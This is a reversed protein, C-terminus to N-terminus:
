LEFVEFEGECNEFPEKDLTRKILDIYVAVEEITPSFFLQRIGIQIEFEKRIRAVVQVAMLSNGGIELFNDKLGVRKLGLIESLIKELKKQIETTPALYKKEIRENFDPIPLAKRDVKGNITLPISEMVIFATPVMYQPLRSELFARVETEELDKKNVPVVYAILQKNDNREYVTVVARKVQECQSLVSEIEGLEIRFGRIKVQNDLRGIFEINGDPLWRALDGTKYLRSSPDDDFPNSIFKEKTLEPRNLYGRALGAGLVHIEGSVGIPSLSNNSDLILLGLDSLPIGILDWRKEEIIEKTIQQYTVHVTTETIGYMNYLKPISDGFRRVWPTIRQFDLVEGGFVVLRLSNPKDKKTLVIDQFSYFASPTQNLVTVGNTVILDYFDELSTTTVKPVVVLTGGFFLAGWLEWVSFDFSFSHFFAWVDTSNFGYLKNTSEFLRKVNGHTVAVGKPNGSSGSTYIIYCLNEASVSCVPNVVPATMTSRMFTKPNVVELSQKGIRDSLFKDSILIDIDTDRLIYELREKPISSEIPVYAGGAKLIGLIGIVMELSRELCIGVLVEPGVNKKILFHALHNARENLERYTLRQDEFVAAVNDPSKEAHEEFLQHVCKDTPYDVRKKNWRALLQRREAETLIRLESIKKGPNSVIEELLVIYHGIMRQITKKGFLERNYEIFGTIGGQNDTLSLTLDFKSVEFQTDIQTIEVGPLGISELPVNQLVFMVQFLPSYSQSRDVALADVLKEFPLDQNEYADLTTDKVQKLFERFNLEANVRSRLVLTNVFFGVMNEIEPRTRNTIPSGVAIDSSGTYKSLLVQFAALLMMFLTTEEASCLAKLQATSANPWSIKETAGRYSQVVPRPRDTPLQLLPPLGALKSKWHNISRELVEGQMYERQYYAFDGYQIPLEPLPAHLGKLCAYYILSFERVLILNSWGDSVIHHMNILLLHDEEELKLLSVRLLPAEELNFPTSAHQQIEKDIDSKIIERHEVQFNLGDVIVQRALGDELRFGTRLVEHRDVIQQFSKDFADSDIKGKLRLTFPLNYTAANQGELQYLFWLRQQAFSLPIKARQSEPMKGLPYSIEKKFNSEDELMSLLEQKYKSISKGMEPTISDKHAKVVLERGRKQITINNAYIQSLLEPFTM